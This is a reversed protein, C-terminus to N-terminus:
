FSKIDKKALFLSNSLNQGLLEAEIVNLVTINNFLDKNDCIRLIDKGLGHAM